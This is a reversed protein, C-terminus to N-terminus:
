QIEAESTVPSGTAGRDLPPRRQNTRPPVKSANEALDAHIAAYVVDSLGRKRIHLAELGSDGAAKQRAM